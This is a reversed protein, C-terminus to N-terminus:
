NASDIYGGGQGWFKKQLFQQRTSGEVGAIGGYDVGFAAGRCDRDHEQDRSL